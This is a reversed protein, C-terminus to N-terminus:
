LSFIRNFIIFLLQVWLPKPIEQVLFPDIYEDNRVILWVLMKESCFKLFFTKAFM